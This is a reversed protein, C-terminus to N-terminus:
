PSSLRESASYHIPVMWVLRKWWITLFVRLAAILIVMNLGVNKIVRIFIVSFMAWETSGVNPGQIGILNSVSQHHGPQEAAHFELGFGLGGNFYGCTLLIVHPLLGYGEQKSVPDPGSVPSIICEHNDFL